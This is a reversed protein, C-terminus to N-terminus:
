WHAHPPWDAMSPGHLAVGICFRLYNLRHDYVSRKKQSYVHLDPNKDNM